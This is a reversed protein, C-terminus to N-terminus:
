GLRDPGGREHTRWALLEFMSTVAETVCGEVGYWEASLDSDLYITEDSFDFGASGLVEVLDFITGFDLEYDLQHSYKNRIGNFQRLATAEDQSILNLAEAQGVKGHFMGVPKPSGAATRILDALMAEVLLHGVITASLTPNDAFIEVARSFTHRPEHVAVVEVVEAKM